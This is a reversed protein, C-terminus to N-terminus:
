WTIVLNCCKLPSIENTLVLQVNIEFSLNQSQEDPYLVLKLKM